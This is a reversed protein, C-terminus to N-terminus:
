KKVSIVIGSLPAKGKTSLTGSGTYEKPDTFIHIYYLGEKSFRLPITYITGSRMKALDWAPITRYTESSYDEYSSTKGLQRISMPQPFNERYMTLFYLYGKGASNVTITFAEDPKVTSPISGFGLYRNIFEEYYRFQKETIFYGIGVWNHTKDIINKKHGDNPAKEKMFTAHGEKMMEAVSSMSRDLEGTTGSGYANESIHDTGGALAYRHYPKEGSMNWHSIFNNEAAERCMKNAVRSALIDLKVPEARYKKRSANIIELQRLKLMLVDDNDKYNILRQEKDNLDRYYELDVTSIDRKEQLTVSALIIPLLASLYLKIM